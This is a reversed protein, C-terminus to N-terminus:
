SRAVDPLRPGPRELRILEAPVSCRGSRGRLASLRTSCHPYLSFEIRVPRVVRDAGTLWIQSRMGAALQASARAARVRCGWGDQTGRGEAGCPGLESGTAAHKQVATGTTAFVCFWCGGVGADARVLGDAAMRVARSAAAGSTPGGCGDCRRCGIVVRSDLLVFHCTGFRAGM